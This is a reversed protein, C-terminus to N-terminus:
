RRLEKLFSYAMLFTLFNYVWYGGVVLPLFAPPVPIAFYYEAEQPRVSSLDVVGELQRVLHGESVKRTLSFGYDAEPPSRM